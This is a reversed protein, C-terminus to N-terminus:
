PAPPEFGNRWEGRRRWIEAWGASRGAYGPRGALALARCAVYRSWPWWMLLRLGPGRAAPSFHRKILEAKARLLRIMKESRVQESAGGHHVILAEPTIAPRLGLKEARLCLDTEEGYMVFVPDFGGLRAWTERSVLFLCGTVIDVERVSDRPWAGYTESNFVESRPFIATLGVVRFFLSRLTMRQWCSYPNLRGDAYCTRGGWIGAEPRARSFAFLKDIARDLVVTDPNLLLLWPARCHPLAIDHAAAFGHNTTEALLTVQPFAAAIAEASGDESANDVVVVEFDLSTQAHISELCALTMGRTNYSVVIISLEPSEGKM